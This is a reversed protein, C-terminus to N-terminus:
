FPEEVGWPSEKAEGASQAVAKALLEQLEIVEALSLDHQVASHTGQVYITVMREQTGYKKYGRAEFAEYTKMVAM